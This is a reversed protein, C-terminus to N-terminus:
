AAARRVEREWEECERCHTFGPLILTECAPDACAHCEDGWDEPRDSWSTPDTADGTASYVVGDFTCPTGTPLEATARYLEVWRRGVWVPERVISDRHVYVPQVGTILPSLHSDM